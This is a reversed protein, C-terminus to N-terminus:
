SNKRAIVFLSIGIPLGIRVARWAEFALWKVMLTNWPESLDKIDSPYEDKSLKWIRDKLSKLLLPLFLCEYGFTMKEVTFGSSSLLNRLRGVSYRRLHGLQEDRRSKLFSLAPVTIVAIGGRTLINGVDKMVQEDNEMHELCDFLAAMNFSGPKFPIAGTTARIVAATGLNGALGAAEQSYEMGTVDGWESLFGFMTGTGCGLDLIRCGPQVGTSKLLKRVLLQKGQYWWYREGERDMKRFIEADMM